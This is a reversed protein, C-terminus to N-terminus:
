RPQLLEARHFLHRPQGAFTHLLETVPQLRDGGLGRLGRLSVLLASRQHHQPGAPLPEGNALLPLPEPHRPAVHFSPHGLRVELVRGLHDRQLVPQLTLSHLATQGGRARAPAVLHDDAVPRELEERFALLAMSLRKCSTRSSSSPYSARDESSARSLGWSRASGPSVGSHDTFSRRAWRPHQIASAAWTISRM